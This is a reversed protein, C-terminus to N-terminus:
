WLKQARHRDRKWWQMPLPLPFTGPRLSHRSGAEPGVASCSTPQPAAMTEPARASHSWPRKSTRGKRSASSLSSRSTRVAADALGNSVPNYPSSTDHHIGNDKCYKKFAEGRFQPGGYSRISKPLGFYEFWEMIARTVALSTTTTLRLVWSYGSHRDVMVLYDSSGAAFLEMSVAQIPESTSAPPDLPAAPPKSPLSDSCVECGAISDHIAGKM